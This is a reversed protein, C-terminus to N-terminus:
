MADSFWSERATNVQLVFAPDEVNWHEAAYAQCWELAPHAVMKEGALEQAQRQVEFGDELQTKWYEKMYWAVPEWQLPKKVVKV